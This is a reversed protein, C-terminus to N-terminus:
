AGPLRRRRHCGRPPMRRAPAGAISLSRLTKLLLFCRSPAALPELPLESSPLMHTQSCGMQQTMTGGLAGRKAELVGGIRQLFVAVVSSVPPSAVEETSKTSQGKRPCLCAEAAAAGVLVGGLLALRGRVPGCCSLATPPRPRRAYDRQRRTM